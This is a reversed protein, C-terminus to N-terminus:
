LGLRKRMDDLARGHEKAFDAYRDEFIKKLDEFSKEYITKAARHADDYGRLYSTSKEKM